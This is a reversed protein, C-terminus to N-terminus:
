AGADACKLTAAISYCFRAIETIRAAVDEISGAAGDGPIQLIITGCLQPSGSARPGVISIIQDLSGVWLATYPATM